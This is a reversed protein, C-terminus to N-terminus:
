QAAQKLSLKLRGMDDVGVVKVRVSQGPKVIEAPDKVFKDALESVHILGKGELNGRVIKTIAGFQRTELIMGDYTEGVKFEEFIEDIMQRARDRAEKPSGFIEVTGDDQINLDVGSLRVIEKIVKGGPGILKGIKEPDISLREIQPAFESLETRPAAIAKNMVDLVKTRAIKAADIAEFIVSYPISLRKTDMQIATIGVETGAVKFDMEGFFDETEAMDTLLNYKAFTEDAVVGVSIGAAPRKIPVGADMLAMCTGSVQGMSTSGAETMIENVVRIMYPFESQPPILREVAKEGLAGHGIDRRGPKYAMRGPEGYAYPSANYEQLYLNLGEGTFDETSQGKAPSALTAISLLHTDGRRFMASGHARKLISVEASLPRIEDFSRGDIRHGDDLVAKKVYAKMKKDLAATIHSRKVTEDAKFDASIKEILAANAVM